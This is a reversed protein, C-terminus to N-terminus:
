KVTFSFFSYVYGDGKFNKATGRILVLLCLAINVSNRFVQRIYKIHKLKIFRDASNSDSNLFLTRFHFVYNAIKKMFLKVNLIEYRQCTHSRLM